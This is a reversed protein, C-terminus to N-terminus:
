VLFPLIAPLLELFTFVKFIIDKFRGELALIEVNMKYINEMWLPNSYKMMTKQTDLKQPSRLEDLDKSLRTHCFVDKGYNKSDLRQFVSSYLRIM